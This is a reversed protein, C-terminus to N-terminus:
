TRLVQLVHLDPAGSAPSPLALLTPSDQRRPLDPMRPLVVPMPHVPAVLMAAGAHVAASCCVDGSVYEGTHVTPMAHHEVPSGPPMPLPSVSTMSTMPATRYGSDRDAAYGLCMVVAGLLVALAPCLVAARTTWWAERPRGQALQAWSTM